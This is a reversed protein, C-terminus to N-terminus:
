SKEKMCKKLIKVSIKIHIKLTFFFNFIWGKIKDRKNKKHYVSETTFQHFYIFRYSLAKRVCM